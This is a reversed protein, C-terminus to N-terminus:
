KKKDDLYDLAPQRNGLLSEYRFDDGVSERMEQRAKELLAPNLFLEAVTTAIVESATFAGQLGISTGSAAVTQWTHSATGPVWSMAFIGVTPVVWSVDGVDTSAKIEKAPYPPLIVTADLKGPNDLTSAINEAFAAQGNNWAPIKVANFNRSAVDILTRNILLPYMGSTLEYEVTAGTAIAAGRSADLVRQWVDKAVNVDEHRVTLDIEAFDPVVNSASGGSTMIYHIRTKESIHERLYEVATGMLMAGDLASVGREPYHAAHASVGRFRFRGSISAMHPSTYYGNYDTPHWHMVADVDKFFGDRVLYVKGAGGEEAPCGYLRIEGQVGSEEMWQRIAIASAVAASGILNHGCGHGASKDEMPKQVATSDQSLGKLADYEALIAIVPGEGHQYSAIFATPMGAINATVTFGADQLKKQLIAASKYEKFGVEALGWIELANESLMPHGARVLEVVRAKERKEKGRSGAHSTGAYCLSLAFLLLFLKKAKM